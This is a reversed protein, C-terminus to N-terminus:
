IPRVEAAGRALLEAASPQGADLAVCDAVGFVRLEHPFALVTLQAGQLPLLAGQRQLLMLLLVTGCMPSSPRRLLGLMAEHAARYGTEQLM